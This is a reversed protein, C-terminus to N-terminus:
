PDVEVFPKGGDWTLEILLSDTPGDITVTRGSTEPDAYKKPALWRRKNDSIEEVWTVTVPHTGLVAGDDDEFTKLTFRGDADIAASAPRANAPYLRIVGGGLPQGDIRVQGSVRAREPRGRGCGAVVASLALLCCLSWAVAAHCRINDHSISSKM